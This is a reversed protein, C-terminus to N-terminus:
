WPGRHPDLEEVWLPKVTEAEDYDFGAAKISDSAAKWEYEDHDKKGRKKIYDDRIKDDFIKMTGRHVSVSELLPLEKRDDEGFRFLSQLIAPEEIWYGTILRVTKISPPLIDCLSPISDETWGCDRTHVEYDDIFLTRLEETDVPAGYFLRTDMELHELRVFDKLACIGAKMRDYVRHMTISLETLTGGCHEGLARFVSNTDWNYGAAHWKPSFALKFSRLKPTHPFLSVLDPGSGTMCSTYFEIEEINSNLAPYRWEFPIGTFSDDLAVLDTGRLKRLIPLILFPNLDELHARDEGHTEGNTKLTTVRALAKFPRIGANRTITNLLAITEPDPHPHRTWRRGLNLETVNPLLSLLFSATRENYKSDTAYENATTELWVLPDIGAEQLYKSDHLLRSIHEVAKADELFISWEELGRGFLDPPEEHTFDITEIYEAILPDKAV